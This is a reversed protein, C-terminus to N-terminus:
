WGVNKDYINRNVEFYLKKVIRIHPVNKLKSIFVHLYIFSLSGKILSCNEFQIM